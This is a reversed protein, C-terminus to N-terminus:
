LCSDLIQLIQDRAEHKNSVDIIPCYSEILRVYNDSQDNGSVSSDVLAVCKERSVIAPDIVCQFKFAADFVSGSNNLNVKEFLSDPKGNGHGWDFPIKQETGHIDCKVGFRSQVRGSIQPSDFIEKCKESLGYKKKSEVTSPDAVLEEFLYNTVSDLEKVTTKEMVFGGDILLFQGDQTSCFAQLFNTSKRKVPESRYPVIEDQQATRNWFRVWRDYLEKDELCKLSDAERFKLRVHGRYWTVVGINVPEMRALDPIYKALLYQAKM